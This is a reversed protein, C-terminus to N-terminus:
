VKEGKLKYIVIYHWFIFAFEHTTIYCICQHSILSNLSGSKQM